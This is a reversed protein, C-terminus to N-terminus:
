MNVDNLGCIRGDRVSLFNCKLLGDSIIQPRVWVGGTWDTWMGSSVGYGYGGMERRGDLLGNGRCISRYCVIGNRVGIVLRGLGLFDAEDM